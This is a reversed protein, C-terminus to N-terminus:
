VPKLIRVSTKEVITKTKEKYALMHPASM